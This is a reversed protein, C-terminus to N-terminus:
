FKKLGAKVYGNIIRPKKAKIRTFIGRKNHTDQVIIATSFDTVRSVPKGSTVEIVQYQEPTKKLEKSEFAFTIRTKM